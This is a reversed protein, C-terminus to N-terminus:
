EQDLRNQDLRSLRDSVIKSAVRGPVIVYSISSDSVPETIIMNQKKVNFSKNNYRM